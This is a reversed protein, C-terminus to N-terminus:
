RCWQRGPTPYFDAERREFNSRKGMLRGGPDTILVAVRRQRGTQMGHKGAARICGLMAPRNPATHCCSDITNESDGCGLCRGPPSCVPHRNLWEAVCCQFARAEASARPLGGDFEAIAAREDFYVQWDEGSWGDRGPRLLAVIEAKHRSLADLM